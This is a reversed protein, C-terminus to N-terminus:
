RKIIVKTGMKVIDWLEQMDENSRMAICGATWDMGPKYEGAQFKQFSEFKRNTTIGHIMIASGPRRLHLAAYIRDWLNPYSIRLGLYYDSKDNRRDIRYTGEPTKRDGFFRKKGIPCTGLDIDYEAVVKDGHCLFLKRASKHIEIHMTM